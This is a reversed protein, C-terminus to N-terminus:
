SVTIKKACETTSTYKFSVSQPEAYSSSFCSAQIIQDVTEQINDFTAQISQIPLPQSGNATPLNICYNLFNSDIDSGIQVDIFYVKYETILEYVLWETCAMFYKSTDANKTSDNINGCTVGTRLNPNGDTFLIVIKIIEDDDSRPGGEDYTLGMIYKAAQLAQPTNTKGSAIMAAGFDDWKGNTNVSQDM